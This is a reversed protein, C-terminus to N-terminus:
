CAIQRFKKDNTRKNDQQRGLVVAVQHQRRHRVELVGHVGDVQGSGLQLAAGLVDDQKCIHVNSREGMREGSHGGDNMGCPRDRGDLWMDQKRMM